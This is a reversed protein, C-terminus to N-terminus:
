GLVDHMSYLGPSRGVLWHAARVAGRAFNMRSSARHTLAVREGDGLFHVTHDGVVDGGRITSFGITGAARPGTHGERAYVADDALSRGAGRAAAEGLMLATGSPADVKHRHHAEVVEIDFEGGLMSAAQEVLRQLLFIGVSFNGSMCIPIETAAQEIAARQDASYGTTGIVLGRRRQRCASLAGALAEPRTFDILVDFTDANLTAQVAVGSAPLGALTSADAGLAASAAHEFAAGLTVRGESAAVAQVLTRGMRGAAGLIGVRAAQQENM